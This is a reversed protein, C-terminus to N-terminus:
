DRGAEGTVPPSGYRPMDGLEAPLLGRDIMERYHRGL